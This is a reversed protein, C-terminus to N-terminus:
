TSQYQIFDRAEPKELDGFPYEDIVSFLRGTVFQRHAAHERGAVLMNTDILLILHQRQSSPAFRAYRKSGGTYKRWHLRSRAEHFQSRVDLATLM